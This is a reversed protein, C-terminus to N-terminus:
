ESQKGTRREFSDRTGGANGSWAGTARASGERGGGAERGLGISSEEDLATGVM